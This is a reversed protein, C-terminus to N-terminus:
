KDLRKLVSSKPLYLPHKPSGDNNQGLCMTKEQQMIWNAIEKADETLLNRGWAAVVLESVIIMKELEDRNKSGIPNNVIQLNKPDTSRFAYINGMLLCNFGWSKAFGVCRRITPDDLTADATSPNLGIFLVIRPGRSIKRTLSYRYLQDDSITASQELYNMTKNHIGAKREKILM